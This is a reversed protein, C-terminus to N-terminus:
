HQLKVSEPWLGLKRAIDITKQTEKEYPFEEQCSVCREGAVVFIHKEIDLTIDDVKELKGKQCKPCTKM